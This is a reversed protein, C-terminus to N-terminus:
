VSCVPFASYSLVSLSGDKLVVERQEGLLSLSRVGKSLYVMESFTPRLPEEPINKTCASAICNWSSGNSSPDLVSFNIFLGRLKKCRDENIDPPGMKVHRGQTRQRGPLGNQLLTFIFSFPRVLNMTRSFTSVNGPAWYKWDPFFAFASVVGKNRELTV